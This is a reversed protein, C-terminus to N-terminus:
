PAQNTAIENRGTLNNRYYLAVLLAGTQTRFEDRIDLITISGESVYRAIPNASNIIRVVEGHQRKTGLENCALLTNGTTPANPLEGQQVFMALQVGSDIPHLSKIRGDPDVAWDQTLGEYWPAAPNVPIRKASTVVPADGFPASDLSYTGLGTM